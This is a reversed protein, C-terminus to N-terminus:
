STDRKRAELSAAASSRASSSCWAWRAHHRLDRGRYQRLNGFENRAVGPEVKRLLPMAVKSPREQLRRVRRLAIRGIGVQSRQELRRVKAFELRDDVPQRDALRVEEPLRATEVDQAGVHQRVDNTAAPARPSCEADQAGAAA